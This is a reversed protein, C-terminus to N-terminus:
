SSSKLWFQFGQDYRRDGMLKIASLQDRIQKDIWRVLQAAQNPNRGHKRRNRERWIAYVSVQFIYRAIFSEVRDKWNEQIKTLLHRWDTSYSSKYISKASMEWVESSFSCSFFLHDRSETANRCLLCTGQLGRNWLLMKDGTSLRDYVALWVCFSFKPTSHTFWVGKHWPVEIGMTRTNNWTEKTSFCHRYDDNKGKWLTVDDNGNRRQRTLELAEEMQNLVNDRHRRQRRGNWAEELTMKRSIGMDITGRDGAIEVLRCLTSWDDYWLFTNRGNNVEKKCFQKAM